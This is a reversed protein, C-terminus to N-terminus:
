REFMLDIEFMKFEADIKATDIKFLVGNTNAICICKFEELFLMWKTSTLVNMGFLKNFV